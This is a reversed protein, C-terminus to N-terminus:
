TGQVASKENNDTNDGATHTTNDSIDDEIDSYDEDVDSSTADDHSRSSPSNVDDIDRLEDKENAQGSTPSLFKRYSYILVFIIIKVHGWNLFMSILKYMCTCKFSKCKRYVYYEHPQKNAIPMSYLGVCVCVRVCVCVCVCVCACVCVCVCVCVYVCVCVCVNM